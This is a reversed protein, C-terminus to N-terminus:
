TSSQSDLGWPIGRGWGVRPPFMSLHMVGMIFVWFKRTEKFIPNECRSHCVLFTDLTYLHGRRAGQTFLQGKEFMAVNVFIKMDFKLM